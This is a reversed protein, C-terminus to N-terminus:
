PASGSAFGAVSSSGEQQWQLCRRFRAEMRADQTEPGSHATRQFHRFIRHLGAPNMQHPATDFNVDASDRRAVRPFVTCLGAGTRVSTGDWGMTGHGQFNAIEGDDGVNVMAFGREHVLKELGAAGVAVVLGGGLAGHVGHVEFAFFADGDLGLVGGDVPFAVGDVDDIGGAVGVEAGLDFADHFHDIAHQEHDIGGAARLRLGAEHQALRQVFAELRDDDDVLDVAREGIRELDM